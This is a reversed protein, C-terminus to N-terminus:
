HLLKLRHLIKMGVREKKAQKRRARARKNVAREAERQRNRKKRQIEGADRQRMGAKKQRGIFRAVSVGRAALSGFCM